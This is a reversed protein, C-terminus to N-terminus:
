TAWACVGASILILCARCISCSDPVRMCVVTVPSVLPRNYHSLGLQVALHVQHVCSWRNISRQEKIYTMDDKNNNHACAAISEDEVVM